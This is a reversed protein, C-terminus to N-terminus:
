ARKPRGPQRAAALLAAGLRRAGVPSLYIQEDSNGVVMEIERAGAAARVVSMHTKGFDLSEADVTVTSLKDVEDAVALLHGAFDRLQASSLEVDEPTKEVIGVTETTGDPWDRRELWTSVLAPEGTYTNGGTISRPGSSHNRAGGEATYHEVCWDPCAETKDDTHPKGNTWANNSM